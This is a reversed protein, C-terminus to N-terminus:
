GGEASLRRRAGKAQSAELRASSKAKRREQEMAKAMPKPLNPQLAEHWGGVIDILVLFYMFLGARPLIPGCINEQIHELFKLPEARNQSFFTDFDTEWYCRYHM